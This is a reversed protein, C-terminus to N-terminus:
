TTVHKDHWAIFELAAQDTEQQKVSARDARRSPNAMLIAWNM